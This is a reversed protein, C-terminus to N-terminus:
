KDKGAPSLAVRDCRVGGRTSFGVGGDGVLVIAADVKEYADAALFATGSAPAESCRPDAAARGELGGTRPAPRPRSPVASPGSFTALATGTSTSAPPSFFRAWARTSRPLRSALFFLPISSAARSKPRSPRHQRCWAGRKRSPSRPGSPAASRSIPRKARQDAGEPLFAARDDNSTAGPPGGSATGGQRRRGIPTTARTAAAQWVLVAGTAHLRYELAREVDDIDDAHAPHQLASRRRGCGMRVAALENGEHQLPQRLARRSSSPGALPTGAHQFGRATMARTAQMALAPRRPRSYLRNMICSAADVFALTANPM